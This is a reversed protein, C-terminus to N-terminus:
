SASRFTKTGLFFMGAQVIVIAAFCALAKGALLQGRSVPSMQLRVMTGQTRESVIGIGFTM